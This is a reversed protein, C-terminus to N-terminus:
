GRGRIPHRPHLSGPLPKQLEVPLESRPVDGAGVLCTPAREGPREDDRPHQEVVCRQLLVLHARQRVQVVRLLTRRLLPFLEEVRHEGAGLLDRHTDDRRAVDVTVAQVARVKRAQPRHQLRECRGRFRAEDVAEPEPRGCRLVRGDDVAVRLAGRDGGRRDDGLHRAVPQHVPEIREIRSVAERLVDAVDRGAV